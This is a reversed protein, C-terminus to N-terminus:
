RAEKNGKALNDPEWLPQLNTYHVAVALQNPDGLNFWSLPVIHDISWHPGPGRKGYNDWSMGPEFERELRIRLEPISCGLERVALGGKNNQKLAMCLRTRLIIGLAFDTDRRRRECRRATIKKRNAARYKAQEQQHALRYAAIEKQHTRRYEAKYAKREERHALHWAANYASKGQRHARGYAARAEPTNSPYRTGKHALRYAKIEKQHVLRYAARAEPTSSPYTGRQGQVITQPNSAKAEPCRTFGLSLQVM